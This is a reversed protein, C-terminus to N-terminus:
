YLADYMKCGADKAVGGAAASRQGGPWANQGQMQIGHIRSGM